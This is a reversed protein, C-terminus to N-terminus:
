HGRCPITGVLSDFSPASRWTNVCFDWDFQKENPSVSEAQTALYIPSNASGFTNTKEIGNESYTVSVVSGYVQDPEGSYYVTIYGTQATEVVVVGGPITTEPEGDADIDMPLRPAPSDLDVKVNTGLEGGAGYQCKIRDNGALRAKSITRIAINKVTIPSTVNANVEIEVSNGIMAASNAVAWDYWEDCHQTNETSPYRPPATMPLVGEKPYMYSTTGLTMTM